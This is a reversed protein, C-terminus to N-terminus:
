RAGPHRKKPRNRLVKLKAKAINGERASKKAHCRECAPQLNSLDHNDGPIRHDVETAVVQCGEYKLSCRPNDRLYRSTFQENWWSPLREKRKSTSWSM